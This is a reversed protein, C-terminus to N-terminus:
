QYCSVYVRRWAMRSMYIPNNIFQFLFRKTSKWNLLYLKIMMARQTRKLQEPNLTGPIRVPIKSIYFRSFDIDKPICGAKQCLEWVPTGPFQILISVFVSDPHQGKIFWKKIFNWTLRIDEITETPIGLLFLATINIKYRRCLDISHMNKELNTKKGLIDLIRQSGSEFGISVRVCGARSAVKLLEDDLSDPHAIATWRIVIKNKLILECFKLVRDRNAFFNDEVYGILKIKYKHILSQLEEFILEPSLFRMPTDNSFNHCFICRYPCGRSTYATATRVSYATIGRYLARCYFDEDIFKRDTVLLESNKLCQESTARFIGKQRGDTIIELLIKEGEGVVVMDFGDQLVQEPLASAHVGGIVTKYGNPKIKKLIEVARPYTCTMATFGVLDPKFASIEELVNDGAIEDIIKVQIGSKELYTALSLLGHPENANIILKTTPNIFCVKYNM